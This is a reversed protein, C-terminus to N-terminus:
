VSTQTLFKHIYINFCRLTTIFHLDTHILHKSDLFFALPILIVFLLLRTFHHAKGKQNPLCAVNCMEQSEARPGGHSQLRVRIHQSHSVQARILVAAAPRAGCGSTCM